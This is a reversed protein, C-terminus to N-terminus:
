GPLFGEVLLVNSVTAEHRLPILDRYAPDSYWDRAHQLSPFEIVVVRKTPWTGDVVEAADGVADAVVLPRGGYRAEVETAARAYEAYRAADKVDLLVIAYGKKTM